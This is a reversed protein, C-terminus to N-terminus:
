IHSRLYIDFTVQKTPIYRFDSQLIETFYPQLRQGTLMLYLLLMSVQTNIVYEKASTFTGLQVASGIMVRALAATVGRWLGLVGSLLCM